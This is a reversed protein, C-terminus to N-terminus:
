KPDHGYGATATASVFTSDIYTKGTAPAPVVVTALTKKKMSKQTQQKKHVGPKGLNILISCWKKIEDLGAGSNGGEGVM